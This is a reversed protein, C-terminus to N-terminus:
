LVWIRVRERDQKLQALLVEAIRKVDKFENARPCIVHPRFLIQEPRTLKVRGLRTPKVHPRFLIQKNRTPKAETNLISALSVFCVLVTSHLFISINMTRGLREIHFKHLLLFQFDLFVAIKFVLSHVKQARVPM